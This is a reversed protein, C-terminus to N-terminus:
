QSAPKSSGTMLRAGDLSRRSPLSHLDNKGLRAPKASANNPRDINDLSRQGLMASRDIHAMLDDVIAVHDFRELRFARAKDLGQLVHWRARHRDEAGVAHRPFDFVFRLRPRKRGDVRRTRQDGLHVVLSSSVDSLATDQHENAM